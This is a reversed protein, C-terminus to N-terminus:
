FGINREELKNTAMWVSNSLDFDYKDELTTLYDEMNEYGELEAIQEDSLRIKLIEGSMPNFNLIIIFRTEM